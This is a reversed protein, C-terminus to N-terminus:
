ELCFLVKGGKGTKSEVIADKYEELPYKVSVEMKFEPGIVINILESWIVKLEAATKSLLWPKSHWLM